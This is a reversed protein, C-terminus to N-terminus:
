HTKVRITGNSGLSDTFSAGPAQDAVHGAVMYGVGGTWTVNTGVKGQRGSPNSSLSETPVGHLVPLGTPTIWVKQLWQLPSSTPADTSFLGQLSNFLEGVQTLLRPGDSELGRVGSKRDVLLMVCLAGKDDTSLGVAFATHRLRGPVSLLEDALLVALAVEDFSSSGAARSFGLLNM